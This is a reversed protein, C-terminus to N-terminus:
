GEENRGPVMSQRQYLFPLPLTPTLFLFAFVPLLAPKSRTWLPKAVCTLTAMDWPPAGPLTGRIPPGVKHIQCEMTGNEPAGFPFCKFTNRDRRGAGPLLKWSRQQLGSQLPVTGESDMWATELLPFNTEENRRDWAMLWSCFCSSPSLLLETYDSFVM